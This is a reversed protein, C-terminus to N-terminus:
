QSTTKPKDFSLIYAADNWFWTVEIEEESLPILDIPPPLALRPKLMLLLQQRLSRPRDPPLSKDSIVIRAGPRAVRLMETIAQSRHSFANLGGFHVVADFANSRLPLQAADAEILTSRFELTRWRRQCQRLMARTIDIGFVAGPADLEADIHPFNGGTGVAVELVYHDPELALQDILQCREATPDVGDVVATIRNLWPDIRATREYVSPSQLDPWWM